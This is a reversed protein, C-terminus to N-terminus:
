STIPVINTAACSGARVLSSRLSYDKALGCRAPDIPLYGSAFVTAAAPSRVMLRKYKCAYEAACRNVLDTLASIHPFKGVDLPNKATIARVDIRNLQNPCGCLPCRDPYAKSWSCRVGFM